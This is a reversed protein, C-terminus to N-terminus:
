APVPVATAVVGEFEDLGGAFFHDDAPVWSLTKPEAFRAFEAELEARPGYQDNTSQIFIKPVGCTELYEAPGHRTPFGCALMWAPQTECGLRTIVRAGFSFGALAFPLEPYRARLWDLAARADEIEGELQAHQGESRGVGRFNFRLVVAGSRRIARAMRYIVKNHLTGGFLPHPHCLVVATHAEREDPEELLAELRGAPGAIDHSEIRRPV